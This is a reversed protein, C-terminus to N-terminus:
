EQHNPDAGYDLIDVIAGTSILTLTLTGDQLRGGGFALGCLVACCLPNGSDLGHQTLRFPYQAKEVDSVRPCYYGTEAIAGLM